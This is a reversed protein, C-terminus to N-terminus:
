YLSRRSVSRIESIKALRHHNQHRWLIHRWSKLVHLVMARQEGQEQVGWQSGNTVYATNAIDWNVVPLPTLAIHIPENCFGTAKYCPTPYVFDLLIDPENTLTILVNSHDYRFM